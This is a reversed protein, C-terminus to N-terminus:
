GLLVLNIVVVDNDAVLHHLVLNLHVTLTTATILLHFRILLIVHDFTDDGFKVLFAVGQFAAHRCFTHHHQRLIETSVVLLLFQELTGLHVIHNAEVGGLSVVIAFGFQGAQQLHFLLLSQLVLTIEVELNGFDSAVHWTREILFEEVLDEWFSCHGRSLFKCGLNLFLNLILELLIGVIAEQEVQALMDGLLHTLQFEGVFFQLADHEGIGLAVLLLNLVVVFLAHFFQGPM